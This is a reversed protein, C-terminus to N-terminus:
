RFGRNFVLLVNKQGRYEPLRITDGRTDILTFSPARRGIQPTTPM